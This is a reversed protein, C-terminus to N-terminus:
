CITNLLNHEVFLTKKYLTNKIYIHHIGVTVEHRMAKHPAAPMRPKVISAITSSIIGRYNLYRSQM